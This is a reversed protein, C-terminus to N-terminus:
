TSVSTPWSAAWGPVCSCRYTAGSDSAAASQTTATSYLQTQIFYQFALWGGLINGWFYYSVYMAQLLEAVVMGVATKM